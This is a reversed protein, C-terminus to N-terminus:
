NLNGGCDKNYCQNDNEVSNQNYNTYGNKQVNKELYDEFSSFNRDHPPQTAGRNSTFGRSGRGRYNGRYSNDESQRLNHYHNQQAASNFRNNGSDRNM